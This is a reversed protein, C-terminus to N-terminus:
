GKASKASEPKDAETKVAQAGPQGIGEKAEAAKEAEAAVSKCSVVPMSHDGILEVSSPIPLDSLHIIDGIDLGGIDIRIMPPLDVPFCRVTVEHRAVDLVGGNTKVGVSEGFFELPVATTMRETQLVEHFDIHLFKDSIPDRQIDAIDSLLTTEGDIDVDVLAASHGKQKLLNKLEKEEIQLPTTGSHGYVVAPVRGSARLRKMSGRGFENRKGVLLKLHNM